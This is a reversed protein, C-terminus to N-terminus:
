HSGSIDNETGHVLAAGQTVVATGAAPGKALVVRDGSFREVVVAAREFSQPRVVTYVFPKGDPDYLLAEYPVVPQGGSTAVAATRLDSRRMGEDTFSVVKADGEETVKSPHYGDVTASEVETCGALAAGAALCALGRAVPAGLRASM